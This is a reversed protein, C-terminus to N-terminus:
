DAYGRLLLRAVARSKASVTVVTVVRRERWAAEVIKLIAPERSFFRRHAGAYSELTFGEFDGFHDFLLGSVKGSWAGAKDAGGTDLGGADLGDTDGLWDDGGPDFPAGGADGGADGDADEDRTAGPKIDDGPLPIVGDPAAPVQDPNGGLGRVKDALLEVYRVFTAYWRSRPRLREARWRMISLLRMHHALMDAKVSVPIGLQFAGITERWPLAARRAAAATARDPHEIILAHDASSDIVGRDLILTRREDLQIVGAASTAAAAATAGKNKTEYRAALKRAEDQDIVQVKPPDLKLGRGRNTIQRVALDFRQGRKVGLPLDAILVGTRRALSQPLPVYRAGTGPLAVTHADLARLDHRAYFRNALAVVAEADWDPIYVRVETGEPPPERWELLLEDPPLEDSIAQPSAEIEFTTFARRSGDLGPNAITSLALNRQALKDSTFPNAGNPIPTDPFEIQAVICQHDNMMLTPLDVAAGGSPTEPLYPGPLNNDILCGFFASGGVNLPRLNEGDTQGAPTAARTAAFMPFSLWESGSANTGPLAIRDNPDAPDTRKYGQLPTGAPAENYTLAATTQTTFIRFFVRLAPVSASAAPLRVRAVAFNYVNRSPSGTTTPLSSLASAGQGTPLAEFQTVTMSDLLDALHDIADQRSAGNPLPSGPGGAVLPFVRLDSSLWPKTNGDELDLMFPNASKVLTIQASDALPSVASVLAADLQIHNFNGAFGFATAPDVTVRYTFTIRQLRDNDVDDDTALDTPTFSLGAPELATIQPAWDALQSADPSDTTVGGNPFQNPKLGDVTVLIAGDFTSDASAEAQSYTSRELILQIRPRPRALWATINAFVQKIDAYVAPDDNFGHTKAADPGTLAFEAPTDIRRDGVLNIDVYHHFTSGTVIRGVGVARGDYTALTNVTKDLPVHGDADSGSIAFRSEFGKTQGTAVIRPMERHGAVIPYEPFVEGVFTASATDYPYGVVEDLTKGEHMHDPFRTIAVGDPRKLIDHLPAQITLPQPVSDSQNEFWVLAEKVGDNDLDYDGAPNQQTTENRDQGLTDVGIPPNNRPFGPFIADMPSIADDAGFWARMSRVRPIHGCMDAGISDHDGTAFVGGGAAMFRSIARLQEDPLKVTTGSLNRGDLGILWLMDFDLLDVSTDFNFTEIDATSDLQRHAKTIVHGAAAIAATLEKYSFDRTGTSPGDQSFRYDGDLVILVRAM